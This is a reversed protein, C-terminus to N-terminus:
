SLKGSKRQRPQTAANEAAQQKEHQARAYRDRKSPPVAVPELWAIQEIFLDLVEAVRSATDISPKTRGHELADIVSLSTGVKGALEMMTLGRLTRAELGHRTTTVAGHPSSENPM